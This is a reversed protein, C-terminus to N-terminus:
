WPQGCAIGSPDAQAVFAQIDRPVGIMVLAKRTARSCYYTVPMGPAGTLAFLQNNSDVARVFAASPGAAIPFGGQEHEADYAAENVALAEAPAAAALISAARRASGPKLTGLLLYRVRVRGSAVAPSLADYLRRCDSCDPDLLITILPGSRGVRFGLHGPDSAQAWVAAPSLVIGQSRMAARTLDSGNPGRLTGGAFLADGHPTLWVIERGASRGAVIAGVLGDPGPFIEVVHASGHQARAVIQNAQALTLSARSMAWAGPASLCALAAFLVM